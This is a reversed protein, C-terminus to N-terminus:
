LTSCCVEAYREKTVAAEIAAVLPQFFDARMSDVKEQTLVAALKKEIEAIGFKSQLYASDLAKLRDVDKYMIETIKDVSKVSGVPAEGKESELWEKQHSLSLQLTKQVASERALAIPDSVSSHKTRIYHSRNYDACKRLAKDICASLAEEIQSDTMDNNPLRLTVPGINNPRERKFSCGLMSSLRHFQTKGMVDSMKKFTLGTDSRLAKLMHPILGYMSSPARKPTYTKVSADPEAEVGM